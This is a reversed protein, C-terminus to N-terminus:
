IPSVDPYLNSLPQSLRTLTAIEIKAVVPGARLLATVTALRVTVTVCSLPQVNLRLAVDCVM